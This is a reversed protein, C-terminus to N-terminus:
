LEEPPKVRRFATYLMVDYAIKMASGIILPTVLAVEQMFLGAFFPAVAWGLLRVLNTIGSALVREEPRVIALVYSQRTPVDMEVLGERVLFLVAAVPFSPAFAVTVLLLSSPTHTFVMTKVLGIRRALWAAGLHSVANMVRAGFFLTSVAWGSAGFRELFFYSLLSTAVFGGAFADFGFLASIRTVRTRSEVSLSPRKGNVAAEVRRSLAPYMAATLLMLVAYGGLTARYAPEGPMLATQELLSPFGALLAGLAHGADQIVNYWAIVSTRERDTATAPLIAQEIILGAGRDRGMGNLMGLFAAIGMVLPTSASAALASGIASLVAVEILLRRRGHADALVTALLAAVAAGCLGAGIVAGAEGPDFRLRNLYIGFLVGILGTGTARLFATAYLIRRDRM